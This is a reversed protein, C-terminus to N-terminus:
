EAAVPAKVRGGELVVTCGEGTETFKEMFVQYHQEKAIRRITALDESGVKEGDRLLLVRLRPNLAAGIAISVTIRDSHSSQAFPVGKFTVGSEDFGLGPVPFEAAAIRAAQEADCDAIADNLAEAKAKAQELEKALEARATNERVKRNQEDLSALRARVDTDDEPSHQEFAQAAEGAAAQATELDVKAVVLRDRAESLRRELDEIAAEHVGIEDRCAQVKGEARLLAEQLTKHHENTQKKRDLEAILEAVSEERAPADAHHRMANLRAELADVSANVATRNKYAVERKQEIDSFDLGLLAKLIKDQKPPEARAFDLPDFSISSFLKKLSEQPRKIPEGNAGFVNLKHGGKADVEVEVTLEVVQQESGLQGRIKMRRAGKRIPENPIAPKGGFLAEIADITSTKGQRNGGGITTLEDFDPELRVYEVAKFNSVELSVIQYTKLEESM